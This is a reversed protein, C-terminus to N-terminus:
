QGPATIVSRSRLSTTASGRGHRQFGELDKIEPDGYASNFPKRPSRSSYLYALEDPLWLYFPLWATHADHLWLRNPHKSSACTDERRLISWGERLTALREPVTMHEM